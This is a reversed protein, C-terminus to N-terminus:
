GPLTTRKHIDDDIKKQLDGIHREGDGMYSGDDEDSRQPGWFVAFRTIESIKDRKSKM